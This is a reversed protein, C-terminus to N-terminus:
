ALLRRKNNISIIFDSFIYKINEFAHYYALLCLAAVLARYQNVVVFYTLYYYNTQSTYRIIPVKMWLVLRKNM